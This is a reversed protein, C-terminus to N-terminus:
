EAPAEPSPSPSATEKLEETFANGSATSVFKAFETADDRPGTYTVGNVIVTPTKTVQTTDSNPLPGEFARATAANVWKKFRVEDICQEIQSASDIGARRVLGVLAEDDHGTTSSKPQNDFLLKHFGYFSNPAYNAVCAAANAARTSYRSGLSMRDLYAVPHVELTAAGASVWTTVQEENTEVFTACEPCFYDVYIVIDVIDPDDSPVSAVPSADPKLAPTQEAEFAAGMRIGDSLMNLPGPTNKPIGSVVVMVVAIGIALVGVVLGGRLLLRNRRDKKKQELRAQQAKERAALRTENGTPGAEPDGNTM